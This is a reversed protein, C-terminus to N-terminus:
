DGPKEEANAAVRAGGCGLEFLNDSPKIKTQNIIKRWVRNVKKIKKLDELSRCHHNYGKIKLGEIWQQSVNGHTSNVM